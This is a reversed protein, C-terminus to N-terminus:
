LFLDGAGVLNDYASFLCCQRELMQILERTYYPFIRNKAYCIAVPNTAHFGQIPFINLKNDLTENLKMLAPLYMTLCFSAAFDRASMMHHLDPQSSTHVCHLTIGLSDLHRQLLIHSNFQPLNLAFPINQFLRLDAGTWLQKKCEPFQNGFIRKLMNDSIVLYLKEELVTLYELKTTNEQPIGAIMLDLQNNLVYKRLDPSAASSIVLQVDPFVRKFESMIDPMLIRFRGETTGFRIEGEMDRRLDVFQARLNRETQQTEKLAQLMLRGAYTLSFTPKRQFLTVGFERELNSLYKSLNQHTVFLRDAARSINCEEALVIFYEYNTFM